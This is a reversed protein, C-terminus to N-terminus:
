CVKELHKKFADACPWTYVFEEVQNGCPAQWMGQGTLKGLLKEYFRIAPTNKALVELYLKTGTIDGLGSLSKLILKKAIGRGKYKSEVHLNDLLIENNSINRILCIFGVINEKSSEFRDEEVLLVYQNENAQALRKQWVELRDQYVSEQLYHDSLIGQYTEQWSKSHLQALNEIDLKKAIRYNM